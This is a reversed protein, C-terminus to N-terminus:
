SIHLLLTKSSTEREGGKVTGSWLMNLIMYDMNLFGEM